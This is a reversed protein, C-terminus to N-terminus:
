NYVKLALGLSILRNVHLQVGSYFGLINKSTCFYGLLYIECPRACHFIVYLSMLSAPFCLWYHFSSAIMQLQGFIICIISNTSLFM